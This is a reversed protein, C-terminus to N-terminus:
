IIPDRMELLRTHLLLGVLTVSMIATSSSPGWHLLPGLTSPRGAQLTTNAMVFLCCRWVGSTPSSLFPLQLHPPMSTFLACAHLRACPTHPPVPPQSNCCHATYCLCPQLSSLQVPGSGLWREHRPFSCLNVQLALSTWLTQPRTATNLANGLHTRSAIEWLRTHSPTM